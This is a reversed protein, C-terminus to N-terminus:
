EGGSGTLEIGIARRGEILAAEETSFSGAFPDIVVEGEVTSQRVFTRLLKVPKRASHGTGIERDCQIVDPLCETLLRGGSRRAFLVLEYKNPYWKSFDCMTHNNKEWIIPNDQTDFFERMIEKFAQVNTYGCFVYIHADDTLVRALETCVERFLGLAYDKGDSYDSGGDRTNHTSIGYPPDTICCHASAPPLKKLETIADGFIRVAEQKTDGAVRELRQSKDAERKAAHLLSAVAGSQAKEATPLNELVWKRQVDPLKAVRVAQKAALKGSILARDFEGADGTEAVLKRASRISEHTRSGVGSIQAAAQTAKQPPLLPVVTDYLDACQHALSDQGRGHVRGAERKREEAEAELRGLLEGNMEVHMAAQTPTLHRRQVNASMIYALAESETGEWTEFEPAVGAAECAALRNRGDLLMGDWMVIPHLLGRNRIDSVLADFASGQILDFTAAFPHPTIKTTM